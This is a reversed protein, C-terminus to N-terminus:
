TIGYEKIKYHLSRPSIELLKAAKLRNGDTLMLARKIYEREVDEIAKKLSILSEDRKQENKDGESRIFMYDPLDDIDIEDNNSFILLRDILNRLERFNGPRKL